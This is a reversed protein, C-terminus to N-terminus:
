TMDFNEGYDTTIAYHIFLDIIWVLITRCADILTRHVATLSKTVSLGFFNYFAISLLYLAGFLLIPWRNYMQAVADISDDHMSSFHGTAPMFYCIPLVLLSMFIVGFCGEMGVVM